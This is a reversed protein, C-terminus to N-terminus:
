VPACYELVSRILSCYISVLDVKTVGAKRLARLAYLRKNAKKVIYDIHFNWSLDSSIYVGLLKYKQVVEVSEGGLNLMPPLSLLYQLFNLRFEKCKKPNLCMSREAAFESIDNVILKIYSPSCRPVVELVTTDDVYKARSHWSAVLRNVLIAFLM